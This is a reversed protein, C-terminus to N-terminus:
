AAARLKRKRPLRFLFDMGRKEMYFFLMTPLAIGALCGIVLHVTYDEVHLLKQLIVRVGSGILVHMLYIALSAYGIAHLTKLRYRTLEHALAAVFLISVIALAALPLGKQEYNMHYYGHFLWQGVVFALGSMILFPREQMFSSRWTNFLIGAAFFFFNQYILELNAEHPLQNSSAYVLLFVFALVGIWVANVRYYIFSAIVMIMFLAYLFWFQARPHWLVSSVERLTVDGNTYHAMAVEVVGQLLSWVVYPYFVTELKNGITGMPGRNNLSHIFFLGSLFFFLPMHFSYIVSDIVSFLAENITIGAHQLGRAVHGYVVLIIGIAKAYDVWETRGTSARVM